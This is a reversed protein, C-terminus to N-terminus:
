RHALFPFALLHNPLEHRRAGDAALLIETLQEGFAAPLDRLRRKRAVHVVEADRAHRGRATDAVGGGVGRGRRLAARCEGGEHRLQELPEVEYAFEDDHLGDDGARLGDGLRDVGCSAGVHEARNGPLVGDEDDAPGVRRAFAHRLSEQSEGALLNGRGRATAYKHSYYATM